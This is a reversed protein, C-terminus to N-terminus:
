EADKAPGSSDVPKGDAEIVTAKVIYDLNPYRDDLYTNGVQGIASQQPEEGYEDNIKDVVEEMGEVIRGFPAFGQGDLAASNDGRNIFLQTTRSNPQQSKAFVITGRVNSDIRPEDAIGQEQYKRTRAPDGNMGFQVIKLREQSVVRFFKNGDFYGEQVLQYFRDVGLPTLHRHVDVVIDGQSTEFKVKFQEPASNPGRPAPPGSPKPVSAASTTTPTTAPATRMRPPPPPPLVGECGVFVLLLWGFRNIGLGRKM